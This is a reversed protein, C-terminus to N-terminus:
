TLAVVHEAHRAIDRLADEVARAGGEDLLRDVSIIRVQTPAHGDQDRPHRYTHGALKAARGRTDCVAVTVWGGPRYRVQV